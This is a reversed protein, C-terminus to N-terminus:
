GIHLHRAVRAGAQGEVGDCVHAGKNEEGKDQRRSGSCMSSTRGWPRRAHQRKQCLARERTRHPRLMLADSPHEREKGWVYESTEEIM